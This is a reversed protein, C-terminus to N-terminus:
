RFDGGGGDREVGRKRGPPRREISPRVELRVLEPLVHPSRALAAFAAEDLAQNLDRRPKVVPLLVPWPWSRRAGGSAARAASIM